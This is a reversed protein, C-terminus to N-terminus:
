YKFYSSYIRGYPQYVSEKVMRKESGSRDRICMEFMLQTAGGLHIVQKGHSKLKEALPLGYDGCGIIAVDFDIQKCEEYM